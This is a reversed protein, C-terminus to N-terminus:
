SAPNSGKNKAHRARKRALFGDARPKPTSALWAIALPAIERLSLPPQGPFRFCHETRAQLDPDLRGGPILLALHRAPVRVPNALDIKRGLDPSLAVVCCRDEVLKLLGGLAAARMLKLKEMAGGALHWAEPHFSLKETGSSLLLRHLGFSAMARAIAALDAPDTLGDAIVITERAERWDTFDGVRALGFDPRMTLACVDECPGEATQALEIPGVIRSKVGLERFTDDYPALAPAFAATAVVERLAKPHHQLCALLSDMGRLVLRNPHPDPTTM